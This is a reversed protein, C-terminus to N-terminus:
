FYFLVGTSGQFSYTTQQDNPMIVKAEVTAPIYLSKSVRYYLGGGLYAPSELGLQAENLSNSEKSSPLLLGLGAHVFPALTGEGFSYRLLLEGAFYTIKTDCATQGECLTPTATTTSVEFNDLGGRVILGMRDSIPFDLFLKFLMSTGTMDLQGSASKLTQSNSSFGLVVGLKWNDPLFGGSNGPVEEEEEGEDTAATSTAKKQALQVKAGKPAKGQVIKGIAKNNSKIKVITIKGVKKGKSVAYVTDGKVFDDANDMSIEVAKNKTRSVSAGYATTTMILILLILVISAFIRLAKAFDLIIFM